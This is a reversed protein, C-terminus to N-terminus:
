GYREMFRKFTCYLIFYRGEIEASLVGDKDKLRSAHRRGYGFHDGIEEPTYWMSAPTLQQIREIDTETEAPCQQGQEKCFDCLYM